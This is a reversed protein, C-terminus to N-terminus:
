NMPSRNHRGIGFVLDYAKIWTYVCRKEWERTESDKMEGTRSIVEEDRTEVCGGHLRGRGGFTARGDALLSGVGDDIRVTVSGLLDRAGLNEEEM